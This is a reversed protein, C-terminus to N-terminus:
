KATAPYITELVPTPIRQGASFSESEVVLTITEGSTDTLVAEIFRTDTPLGNARVRFERPEDGEKLSKCIEM